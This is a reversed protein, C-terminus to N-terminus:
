AGARFREYASLTRRIHARTEEFPPVGRYDVVNAPGANYAALALELDEDFIRLNSVLMKTGLLVNERPDSPGDVIQLLEAAARIEPEWRAIRGPVGPGLRQGTYPVPTPTAAPRLIGAERNTPFMRPTATPPPATPTATPLPPRATPSPSPTARVEGVSVSAALFMARDALNPATAEVILPAPTPTPQAAPEGTLFPLLDLFSFISALLLVPLNLFTVFMGAISPFGGTGRKPRPAGICLLITGRTRGDAGRAV